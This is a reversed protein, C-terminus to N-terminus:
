IIIEISGQVVFDVMGDVEVELGRMVSKCVGLRMLGDDADCRPLSYNAENDCERSDVLVDQFVTIGM